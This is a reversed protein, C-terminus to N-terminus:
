NLKLFYDQLYKIIINASKSLYKDKLWQLIIYRSYSVTLPRLVIGSHKMYPAWTKGPIISVGMNASILDFITERNDFQLNTNPKFGANQCLDCTIWYLPLQDQMTLFVESRLMEPAIRQNASLPNDKSIGILCTESLLTIANVDDLPTTSSRLYLDCNHKAQQISEQKIYLSIEPYKKKVNLLIDPLFQTAATMSLVVQQYHNNRDSIETLANELSSLISIAYNYLIRGNENLQIGTGAREFLPYGVEQELLHISKSLAPQSIYLQDAANTIHELEAVTKFYKLQLFNM